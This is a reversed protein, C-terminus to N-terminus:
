FIKNQYVLVVSIMLSLIGLCFFAIQFYFLIWTRKGLRQSLDRLENVVSDSEKKQKKRTITMTTRFDKLRNLIVWIALAVSILFFLCGFDFFFKAACSTFFKESALLNIAFGLSATSLALILNIAYSLQNMTIKQWRVFPKANEDEEKEEHLNNTM